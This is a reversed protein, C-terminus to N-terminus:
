AGVLYKDMSTINNGVTAYFYKKYILSNYNKFIVEVHHLM